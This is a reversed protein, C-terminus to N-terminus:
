PTRNVMVRSGDSRTLEFGTTSNGAVAYNLRAKPDDEFAFQNAEIPIIALKPGSSRQFVLKGNELAVTRDGFTGAYASLPLATPVPDVQASLVTAAAELAAKEDPAATMAIRRMAHVRAVELAKDVDVKTTPAIGVGEWDRGTSALVARGVSVSILFGGPVPFFTNRFGAGATNEGIIEGLKFGAVHGVFEEAASATNGSTLVYLPKGVMRGAPLTALSSLRNVRSSGMHFTVIPRNPALFHSIMYQVADPSGGGNRRLDIIAADGGRLFRMANDYAKASNAGAWVFGRSELYRINGPLLKM